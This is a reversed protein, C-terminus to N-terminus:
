QKPAGSLLGQKEQSPTFVSKIYERYSSVAAEAIDAYGWWAAQNKLIKGHASRPIAAVEEPTFADLEPRDPLLINPVAQQGM